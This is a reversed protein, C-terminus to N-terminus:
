TKFRFEIAKARRKTLVLRDLYKQRSIYVGGMSELVPTVMQTDMWTFGQARLFDVLHVLAVKSANTRRHFMSEGAFVGAVYVGYLGGVLEEGEWVELSHAYGAAHFDLYARRLKPTIWTGSQGVRVQAACSDMVEAFNKNFSFTWPCKKMFKALSRPVHFDTFNLVGRPDPSCWITPLAEHPWPFIGFSYAELLREVRLDDSMDIIGDELALEPPPFTKLTPAFLPKM